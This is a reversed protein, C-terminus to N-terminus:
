SELASERNQKHKRHYVVNLEAGIMLILGTLFLWLMLVIVGGLSGYTASYNGFNSVYFSFLLSIFQWLVTALIAGPLVHRFPYDLNPALHYLMMLVGIMVLSSVIWRSAQLLISMESPLTTFRNIITIIVDGFIPLVLSVAFTVIMGLTLVISLLRVKIFSRTEDVDYAINASKIFANIGNSASWLTGIIGITLLGGKPSDVLSIINERFVTMMEGPILEGMFDIARDPSIQLYPLVSLVLIVLPVIALLYYYAQAAALVPLNDKKFEEFIDKGYQIWKNM